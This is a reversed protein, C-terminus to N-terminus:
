LVWDVFLWEVSVVFVSFFWMLVCILLMEFMWVGVGCM